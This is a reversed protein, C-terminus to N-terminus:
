LGTLSLLDFGVSLPLLFTLRRITSTAEAHQIELPTNAM